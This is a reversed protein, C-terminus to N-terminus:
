PINPNRNDRSRSEAIGQVIVELGYKPILATTEPM